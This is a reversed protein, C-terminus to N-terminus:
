LLGTVRSPVPGKMVVVVGVGVCMCVGVYVCLGVCM